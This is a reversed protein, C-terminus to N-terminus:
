STSSHPFLNDLNHANFVEVFPNFHHNKQKVHEINNHRLQTLSLLSPVDIHSRIDLQNKPIVRGIDALGVAKNYTIINGHAKSNEVLRGGLSHGVADAPKHYKQEVAQTLRIAQRQRPAINGAGVAILGDELWDTFRKSGRQVIVPQNGKSVFVKSQMTSLQKDYTYGKHKLLAEAQKQPLYSARLLDPTDRRLKKFGM